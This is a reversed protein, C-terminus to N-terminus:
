SPCSTKESSFHQQCFLKAFEPIQSINSYGGLYRQFLNNAYLINMKQDVIAAPDDLLSVFGALSKSIKKPKM